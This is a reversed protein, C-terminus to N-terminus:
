SQYTGPISVILLMYEYPTVSVSSMAYKKRKPPSIVTTDQEVGKTKDKDPLGHGSKTDSIDVMGLDASAIAVRNTLVLTSTLQTTGSILSPISHVDHSKGSAESHPHGANVEAAWSSILGSYQSKQDNTQMLTFYFLTMQDLTLMIMTLLFDSILVNGGIEREMLQSDGMLQSDEM